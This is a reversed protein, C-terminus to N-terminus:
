KKCIATASPDDYKYIPEFKNKSTAQGLWLFFSGVITIALLLEGLARIVNLFGHLMQEIGLHTVREWKSDNKGVLQGIGGAVAFVVGAVFQIVAAKSRVASGFFAVIPICDIENFTREISTITKNIEM